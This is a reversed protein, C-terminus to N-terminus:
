PPSQGRRLVERPTHGGRRRRAPAAALAQYAALLHPAQHPWALEEEIRRRGFEGMATRRAPDDLLEIIKTAFDAVDNKRAYLSARQASVRGETGDFQVIPKGLAMYELVKNMTSKDNMENATDPNVCVEATGLM